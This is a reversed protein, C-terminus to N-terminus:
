TLKKSWKTVFENDRSEDVESRSRIGAGTEGMEDKYKTVTTEMRYWTDCLFGFMESRYSRPAYRRLHNKIKNTWTTRQAKTKALAFAAGYKPHNKFVCVCLEWQHDTKPKGGGRSTSVNAGVDPYLAQQIEPNDTLATLLTDTDHHNDAQWSGHGICETLMGKLLLQGSSM